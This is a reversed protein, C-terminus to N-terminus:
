EGSSALGASISNSITPSETEYEREMSAALNLAEDLNLDELANGLTFSFCFLQFVLIKSRLLKDLM